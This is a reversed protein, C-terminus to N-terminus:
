SQELKRVMTLIAAIAVIEDNEDVMYFHFGYINNALKM